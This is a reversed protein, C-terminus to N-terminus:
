VLFFCPFLMLYNPEVILVHLSLECDVSCRSVKASGRGFKEVAALTDEDEDDPTNPAFSSESSESETAPEAFRASFTSATKCGTFATTPAFAETTSQHSVALALAAVAVISSIRKTM